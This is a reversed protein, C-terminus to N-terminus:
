PLKREVFVLEAPDIAMLELLNIFEDPHDTRADFIEQIEENTFRHVEFGSVKLWREHFLTNRYEIETGYHTEGDIEIIHRKGRYTFLFDVRQPQNQKAHLKNWAHWSMNHPPPPIVQIWVQPIPIIFQFLQSNKWGIDEEGLLIRDTGCVKEMIQSIAQFWLIFFHREVSTSIHEPSLFTGIIPCVNITQQCNRGMLQFLYPDDWNGKLIANLPKVTTSGIINRDNARHIDIISSQFIQQIFPCYRYEKEDVVEGQAFKRDYASLDIKYENCPLFHSGSKQICRNCTGIHETYANFQQLLDSFLFPM